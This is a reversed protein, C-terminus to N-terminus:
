NKSRIHWTALVGGETFGPLHDVRKLIASPAAGHEQFSPVEAFRPQPHHHRAHFLVAPPEHQDNRRFPRQSFLDALSGACPYLQNKEDELHVAEIGRIDDRKLCSRLRKASKSMRARITLAKM